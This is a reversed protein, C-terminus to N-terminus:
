DPVKITFPVTFVENHQQFQGWIKYIGSKPFNITFVANPDSGKPENPHVHVYEKADASIAVAHALSGLYPQLDTEPLKTEANKISLAMSLDMGAMLHDFSLTAENGGVIKTLSADPRLEEAKNEQGGIHTWHSQVTEGMGQPAFDAILQYDGGSPFRTMIDFRGGGKYAPHLHAFYSLDKSVVILHLQKEHLLEFNDIPRNWKDQILITVDADENPLYNQSVVSFHAIADGSHSHAASSTSAPM